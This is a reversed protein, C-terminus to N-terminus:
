KAKEQNTAPADDYIIEVIGKREMTEAKDRLRRSEAAMFGLLAQVTGMAEIQANEAKWAADMYLWHPGTHAGCSCEGGDGVISGNKMKFKM